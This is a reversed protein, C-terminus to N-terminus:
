KIANKDTERSVRSIESAYHLIVSTILFSIVKERSIYRVFKVEKCGFILTPKRNLCFIYYIFCQILFIFYEFIVEKYIKQSNQNGGTRM